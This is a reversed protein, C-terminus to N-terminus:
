VRYRYYGKVENNKVKRLHRYTVYPSTTRSSFCLAEVRELLFDIWM